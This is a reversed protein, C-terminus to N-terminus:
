YDDSAGFISEKVEEWRLTRMRYYVEGMWEGLDTFKEDLVDLWDEVDDKLTEDYFDDLWAGVWVVPASIYGYIKSETVENVTTLVPEGYTKDM